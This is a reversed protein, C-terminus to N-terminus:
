KEIHGVPRKYIDKVITGLSGDALHMQVEQGAQVHAISRVVHGQNDQVFAYGRQLPALPNLGELQLSLMHWTHHSKEQKQQMLQPLRHEFQSFIREQEALLRRGAYGLRMFATDLAANKQQLLNPTQAMSQGVQDLLRENESLIQQMSHQLRQVNQQLLAEKRQWAQAPSLWKLAQEMQMVKQEHHQLLRQGLEQVAWELGDVSQMLDQRSPWLIQAAHSPTAARVDATMDAISVDVEHGIGALVPIFSVYIAKAVVEENFAWLDELSGGGRILVIVDAEAESNVQQLAKAIAPAAGEGQVPVPYIRISSGTGLEEAIRLFDYIAAGKPSTIVAVRKPNYPLARKREAKFFGEAMLKAKLVEFAAALAGHGEEQVLAITLQYSGRAGYVSIHGACLIEQGNELTLALSPRPGDEFVEGTLPDFKEESRQANKFWVCQLMAESDKLSFYMHGSSPRALNTVEGKVWVFPFNKELSGKISATLERVTFIASM